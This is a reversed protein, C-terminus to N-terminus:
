GGDMVSPMMEDKSHGWGAASAQNKERGRLLHFLTADWAEKMLIFCPSVKFNVPMLASSRPANAARTM